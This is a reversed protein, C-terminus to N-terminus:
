IGSFSLIETTINLSVVQMFLHMRWTIEKYSIIESWENNDNHLHRIDHCQQQEIIPVYNHM